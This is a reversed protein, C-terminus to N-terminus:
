LGLITNEIRLVSKIKSNRAESSSISSHLINIENNKYNILNSFTKTLM